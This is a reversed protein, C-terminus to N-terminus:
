CPSPLSFGAGSRGPDGGHRGSGGGIILQATLIMWGRRQGMRNLLPPPVHDVLAGWVFKILSYFRERGVVHLRHNEAGGQGRGRLWFGLTNGFLMFPLGSSFGLALMASMKPERLSRLVDMM